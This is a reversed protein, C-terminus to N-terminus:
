ISSDTRSVSHVFPPRAVALLKANALPCRYESGSVAVPPSLLLRPRAVHWLFIRASAGSVVIVRRAPLYRLVLEFTRSKVNSRQM